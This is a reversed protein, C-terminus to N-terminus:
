QPKMQPDHAFDMELDSLERRVTHVSDADDIGELSGDPTFYWTSREGSGDIEVSVAHLPATGDESTSTAPRTAASTPRAILTLFDTNQVDGADFFSDTRLIMPKDSVKALIGPLWGGPVYNSPLSYTLDRDGADGGRLSLELKGKNLVADVSHTIKTSDRNEDVPLPTFTFQNQARYSTKLDASSHWNYISQGMWRDPLRVRSEFRGGNASPELHVWGLANAPSGAYTLWWQDNQDDPRLKSLGVDTAQRAQEAGAAIMQSVSNQAPWQIGAAITQWVADMWQEDKGGRLIAIFGQGDKSVAYARCPNDDPHTGAIEWVGDSDRHPDSAAFSDDFCGLMTSVSDAGDKESLVVPVLDIARWDQADNGRLQRATRLADTNEIASFQDPVKIVIGEGLTLQKENTIKPEDALQISQAIRRVLNVDASEPMGEGQLVIAVGRGSAPVVAAVILKDPQAGKILDQVSRIQHPVVASQLLGASGAISVSQADGDLKLGKTDSLLRMELYQLPTFREPLPERIIRVTRPGEEEDGGPESATILTASLPDSGNTIRWGGPLMVTLKRSNITRTLKVEFRNQRHVTIMAAVAVTAGLILWMVAQMLM